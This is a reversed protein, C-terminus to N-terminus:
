LTTLNSVNDFWFMIYFMWKQKIIKQFPVILNNEFISLFLMHTNSKDETM